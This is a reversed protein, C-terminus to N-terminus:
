LEIPKIYSLNYKKCFKFYDESMLDSKMFIIGTFEVGNTEIQKRYTFKDEKMDIFCIISINQNALLWLLKYDKSLQKKYTKEHKLMKQNQLEYNFM